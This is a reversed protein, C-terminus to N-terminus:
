RRVFAGDPTRRLFESEVLSHLVAQCRMADLNWIRRAQPETLRLGPMENYEARVRRTLERLDTATRDIVQM